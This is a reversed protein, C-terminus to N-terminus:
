HNTRVKRSWYVAAAILGAVVALFLLVGLGHFDHGGGHDVFPGPFKAVGPPFFKPFPRVVRAVAVSGRHRVALALGIFALVIAATAATVALTRNRRNRDPEAHRDEVLTTVPAPAPVVGRATAWEAAFSRPDFASSGLVEEAAVGDAQAEDLDADLDAAMENAVPDPVGLRKWEQRCADVFETM